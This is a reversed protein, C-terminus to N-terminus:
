QGLFARMMWTSASWRMSPSTRGTDTPMQPSALGAAAASAAARSSAQEAVSLARASRMMESFLAQSFSSSPQDCSRSSQLRSMMLRPPPRMCGRRMSRSSSSAMGSCTITDVSM